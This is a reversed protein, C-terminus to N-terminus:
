GALLRAIVFGDGGNNGGGCVVCVPEAERRLALVVEAVARGASEMLVDGPVGLEEITYRDLARMQAADVLPWRARTM